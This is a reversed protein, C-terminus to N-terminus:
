LVKKKSQTKEALLRTERADGGVPADSASGNLVNSDLVQAQAPKSRAVAFAVLDDTSLKHLHEHRITLSSDSRLAILKDTAIGAIPALINLPTKHAKAELQDNMADLSLDATREWQNIRRQKVAEIQKQSEDRVLAVTAQHHHLVRAVKRASYGQGLLEIIKARATDDILKGTFRAQSGPPSLLRDDQSQGNPSQMIILHVYLTM